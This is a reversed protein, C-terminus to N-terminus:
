WKRAEALDWQYLRDIGPNWRAACRKPLQELEKLAEDKKGLLALGQCAWFLKYLDDVPRSSTEIHLSLEGCIRRVIDTSAADGLQGLTLAGQSLEGTRSSILTKDALIGELHAVVASRGAKEKHYGIWWIAAHRNYPLKSAISL